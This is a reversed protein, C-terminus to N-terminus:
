SANVGMLRLVSSVSNVARRAKITVTQVIKKPVYNLIIRVNEKGVIDLIEQVEEVKDKKSAIVLLTVDTEHVFITTEMSSPLSGGDLVILDFHTRAFYLLDKVKNRDIMEFIKNREIGYGPPMYFLNDWKTRWIISLEDISVGSQFYNILGLKETHVTKSGPDPIKIYLTKYDLLSATIALWSAVFTKGDNRNPSTVLVIPSNLSGKKLGTVVKSMIRGVKRSMRDKHKETFSTVIAICRTKL